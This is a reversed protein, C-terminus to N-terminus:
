GPRRECVLRLELVDAYPMEARMADLEFMVMEKWGLTFDDAATTLDIRRQLVARATGSEDDM